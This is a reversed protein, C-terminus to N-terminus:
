RRVITLTASKTAGGYSASITANIKKNTTATSINFAASSTGAPVTVSAPVMANKPKSSALSVVVPSSTVKNLTVTGVSTSGGVVTKPNLSLSLLVVPSPPNVTFTASKIVDGYSATINGATPATVSSTNVTFNASSTSAPVTISGPVSAAPNASALSVVAGGAPAAGSLTVTGTAPQGASISSPKISVSALSAPAAIAPNYGLEIVEFDSATLNRFAPNLIDNDWRTDYTGTVYMDSGNDAVVLGYRQMARFIKQINPDTTRQTVDVSAKLRLRAGMPLAGATSGARHSAPYVYGNTARVTVRFAHRIDALTPDYVEDYRVLGPLVALGAADASTWTDPRRNNTNMDFFAGSGAFWRGQTTNYFVNYLEYLHNRDKDVILLHRDQSSRLDVNGPDGSEIWFPQTIAESPIPYFPFSIDTAHEVGDSEDSYQFQVAKLDADTVNSVIAYPMGYITNGTGANGGFDPHLRRAAGNNIFSIFSASNPDVPWSSIDLNWWNDAPFLPLPQPLAGGRASDMAWAPRVSSALFTILTLLAIISSCSRSLLRFQRNNM